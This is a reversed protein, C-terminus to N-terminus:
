RLGSKSCHLPMLPNSTRTKQRGRDTETKRQRDEETQRQRQRDTRSDRNEVLARLDSRDIANTLIVLVVPKGVVEVALRRM